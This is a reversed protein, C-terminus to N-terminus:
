HKSWVPLAKVRGSEIIARFAASYKTDRDHLLYRSNGLFGSEAKTANRVIQQMWPENPHTTIGAIEVKRSELHIFFVYYTMLGRLTLVELPGFRIGFGGGLEAIDALIQRRVHSL